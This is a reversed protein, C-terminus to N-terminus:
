RGNKYSFLIISIITLTLTWLIVYNILSISDFTSIDKVKSLLSLSNTVCIGWIFKRMLVLKNYYIQELQEKSLLELHENQQFYSLIKEWLSKSKNVSAANFDSNTNHIVVSRINSTGAQDQRHSEMDSARFSSM